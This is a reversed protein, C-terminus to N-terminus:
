QIMGKDKKLTNKYIIYYLLLRVKKLGTKLLVSIIIGCDSNARICKVLWEV